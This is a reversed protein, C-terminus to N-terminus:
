FLSKWFNSTFKIDYDSIIIKPLGYYYFVNNFFLKTVEPVIISTNCSCFIARKILRDIFVTITDFKKRTVSLQVIFDIIIQKWYKALTNLLQLLGAPQQYSLKNKQCFNCIM